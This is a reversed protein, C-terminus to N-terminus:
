MKEMERLGFHVMTKLSTYENFIKGKLRVHLSFLAPRIYDKFFPKEKIQSLYSFAGIIQLNRQVALLNFQQVFLEKDVSLYNGVSEIYEALLQEQMQMSLGSYPDILLSAIDYGLPGLRGGQFDIFRVANDKIMINRCQFDRHLFYDGPADGARKAIDRFEGEIGPVTEIGLFGHWFARLFYHSEKEVMLALDYRPTDWCWEQQFGTGGRIQMKALNEITEQYFSFVSRGKCAAGPTSHRTIDHLRKDGLDEFVLVGTEPHWCYLKPVPVGSHELHRGIKWASRSEALDSPSNGAPIIIICDPFDAPQIRLFIRNSGDAAIRQYRNNLFLEKAARTSYIKREVLLKQINEVTELNLSDLM